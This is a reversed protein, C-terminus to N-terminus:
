NTASRTDIRGHRDIKRHYREGVKGGLIAAALTVLFALTTAILGGTTFSSGVPLHPLNMQQLVNYKAGLAAGAGGLILTVIVGILWTVFGQRMGDFRSLRGAVYGGAYYAIALVLLFLIGGTLGVTKATDATVSNASDLKNLALASGAAALISMLITAIGTSALWGFLAAGFHIGGYAAHQADRDVVTQKRYNIHQEKYHDNHDNDSHDDHTDDRTNHRFGGHTLSFAM